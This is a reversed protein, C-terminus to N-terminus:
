AIPTVSVGYRTALYAQLQGLEANTLARNYLLLRSLQMNAFSSAANSQFRSGISFRDFAGLTTTNADANTLGSDQVGNQWWDFVTASHRNIAIHTTNLAVLNQVGIPTKTSAGGSNSRNYQWDDTTAVALYIEANNGSAGAGYNVRTASATTRRVDVLTWSGDDGGFYQGASHCTLYQSSASTFAVFGHGNFNASSATHAPATGGSANNGVGSQDLWATVSGGATTVGVDADLDLVLGSLSSPAFALSRRRMAMAAAALRHRDM